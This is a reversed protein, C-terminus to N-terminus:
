KSQHVSAIVRRGLLAEGCYSAFKAGKEQLLNEEKMKDEKKDKRKIEKKKTRGRM